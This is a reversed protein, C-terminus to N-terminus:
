AVIGTRVLPEMFVAVHSAEEWPYLVNHCVVGGAELVERVCREERMKLVLIRLGFWPHQEV